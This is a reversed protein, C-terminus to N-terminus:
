NFITKGRPVCSNGNYIAKLKTLYWNEPSFVPQLVNIILSM